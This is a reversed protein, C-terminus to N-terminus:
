LLLNDGRGAPNEGDVTPFSMRRRFNERDVRQLTSVARELHRALDLKRMYHPHRIDHFLQELFPIRLHDQAKELDFSEEDHGRNWLVWAAFLSYFATQILSSRFFRDGKADDIDFSLGLAQRYDNLLPAVARLDNPLSDKADRAQRALM